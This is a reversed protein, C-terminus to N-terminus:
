QHAPKLTVDLVVPDQGLRLTRQCDWLYFKDKVVSIQWTGPALHTFEVRGQDNTPLERTTLKIRDTATATVKADVIPYGARDHVSVQVPVGREITMTHNQGQVKSSFMKMGPQVSITQPDILPQGNLSAIVQYDGALVSDFVLSGFNDTTGQMGDRGAPEGVPLVSIDLGQFPTADQDRVLLSLPAGPTIRLVVDDVLPTKADITLTRGSGNLGKASVSVVYPYESFPVDTVEFTPTGRGRTVTAVLRQRRHFKGDQFENRAEELFVHITELRDLVSVALQIDGRVIGKTWGVTSERTPEDTASVVAPVAVNAAAPGSDVHGSDAPSLDVNDSDGTPLANAKEGDLPAPPLTEAFTDQGFFAIGAVAGLGLAGFLISLVRSSM